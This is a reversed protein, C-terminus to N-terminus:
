FNQVSLSSLYHLGLNSQNEPDERNAINVLQGSLWCKTSFLFFTNSIKSCKSYSKMIGAPAIPIYELSFRWSAVVPLIKPNRCDIINRVNVYNGAQPSKQLRSIANAFLKSM